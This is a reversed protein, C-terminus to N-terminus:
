RPLPQWDLLPNRGDSCVWAVVRLGPQLRGRASEIRGWDSPQFPQGALLFWPSPDDTGPHRLRVTEDTDWDTRIRLETHGQARVYRLVSGNYSTLQDRACAVAPPPQLRTAATAAGGGDVSTLLAALLVAPRARRPRTM